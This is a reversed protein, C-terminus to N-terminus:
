ARPTSNDPLCDRWADIEEETLGLRQLSYLIAENIREFLYATEPMSAAARSKKEDTQLLLWDNFLPFFQRDVERLEELNMEELAEYSEGQKEEIPEGLTSELERISRALSAPDLKDIYAARETEERDDFSIEITLEPDPAASLRGSDCCWGCEWVNGRIRVPAGCRPCRM